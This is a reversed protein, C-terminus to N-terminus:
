RTFSFTNSRRGSAVPSEIRVEVTKKKKVLKKLKKKTAFMATATNDGQIPAVFFITTMINDDGKKTVIVEVNGNM